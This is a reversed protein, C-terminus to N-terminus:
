EERMTLAGPTELMELEGGDQAEPLELQGAWESGIARALAAGVDGKLDGRAAVLAERGKEDRSLVEIARLRVMDPLTGDRLARAPHLEALRDVCLARVHMNLSEKVRLPNALADYSEVGDFDQARLDRFTVDPIHPKPGRKPRRNRVGTSALLPRPLGGSLKKPDSPRSPRLATFVVAVTLVLHGVLMVLGPLKLTIGKVLLDWWTLAAPVCWFLLAFSGLFRIVNDQVAEEVPDRAM